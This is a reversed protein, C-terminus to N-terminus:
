RIHIRIEGVSLVSEEDGWMLNDGFRTGVKLTNADMEGTM